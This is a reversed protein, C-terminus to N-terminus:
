KSLNLIWVSAFEKDMAKLENMRARAEDSSHFGPMIVRTINTKTQVITKIGRNQLTNVYNKANQISIASAFVIAYDGGIVEPEIMESSGFSDQSKADSADESESELKLIGENEDSEVIEVLPRAQMDPWLNRPMFLDKGSANQDSISTNAIPTSLCLFLVISAAVAAVYKAAIKNIRIIIHKSDEESILIRKKKFPIAQLKEMQFSDLGYLVPTTIGALCPMFSIIGVEDQSFVGITGFDMSGNEILMMNIYDVFESCMNKAEQLSVNYREILSNELLGDSRRIQPNFHVTRYPPLFLNEEPSFRGEVRRAVFAGLQPIIM